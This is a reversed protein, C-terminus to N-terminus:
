PEFPKRDTEKAFIRYRVFRMGDYVFLAASSFLHGVVGFFVPIHECGFVVLGAFKKTLSRIKDKMM